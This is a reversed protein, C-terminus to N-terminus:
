NQNSNKSFIKGAQNKDKCFGYSYPSYMIDSEFISAREASLRGAWLSAAELSPVSRTLLSSRFNEMGAM